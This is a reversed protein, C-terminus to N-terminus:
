IPETGYYGDEHEPQKPTPTADDYVLRKVSHIENCDSCGDDTAIVLEEECTALRVRM